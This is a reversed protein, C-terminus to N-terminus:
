QLRLPKVKARSRVGEFQMWYTGLVGPKISVACPPMPPSVYEDAGVVQWRQGNELEFVTGKSWGRFESKLRSVLAESADPAAATNELTILASLWSPGKPAAAAPKQTKAHAAAAKQEAEMARAESAAVKQEAQQEIVAVAGAKYREVAAKLKALEAPSLKELGASAREEATMTQTFDQAHVAVVFSVAGLWSILKRM